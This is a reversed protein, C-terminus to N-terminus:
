FPCFEDCYDKVPQDLEVFGRMDSCWGHPVSSWEAPAHTCLGCDGCTKDAVMRAYQEELQEYYAYALQHPEPIRDM